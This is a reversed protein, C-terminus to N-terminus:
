GESLLWLLQQRWGEWWSCLLARVARRTKLKSGALHVASCDRDEQPIQLREWLAVIRARLEACVAENLAQRAQLQLPSCPEACGKARSCRCAWVSPVCQVDGWGGLSPQETM